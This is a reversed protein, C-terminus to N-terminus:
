ENTVLEGWERRIKQPDPATMIEIFTKCEKITGYFCKNGMYDVVYSYGKPCEAKDIRYM